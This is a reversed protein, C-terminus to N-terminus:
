SRKLIRRSPRMAFNVFPFSSLFHSFIYIRGFDKAFIYEIVSYHLFTKWFINVLLQFLDDFFATLQIKSSCIRNCM